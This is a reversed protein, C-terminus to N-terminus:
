PDFEYTIDDLYFIVEGEAVWGFGGVVKSLDPSYQHLDITYKTWINSITEPKEIKPCVSDHYPELPSSCIANGQSDVQYGAGGILFKVQANPTESRAWFTLRDAGTLDYGGPRAGWNGDPRLWYVGAWGIVEQTYAIRISSQGSHPNDSWCETLSVREAVTADGMWGTPFYHNGQEAADTYIAFTSGSPSPPISNPDYEYYIDDLYFTAGAPNACKDTAWGFGGILHSLNQGYSPEPRAILLNITYKQWQDTLEIFGTTVEPRLSDPYPDNKDGIGGVFFRIREGGIKGKAWFTLKNAWSLDLGDSLNGWNNEPYQWYAGAWGLTGTPSFSARVAMEGSHPDCRDCEFLEINDIDGMWGSPVFHGPGEPWETYVPFSKVDDGNAGSKAITPLYVTHSLPAPPQPLQEAPILVGYFSYKATRDTYSYGWHQGIGSEGEVKWLEDFADFFMFNVNEQEARPFFELLYKEQNRPSPVASGNPAGGSPWGAEGIIVWKNQGPYEQGILAQVAKYRNITFAAAGDIPMGSWFPYTHIMVFDVQDLVPRYIPNIGSLLASSSSGWNFMLNDIEATTIPINKGCQNHVGNRVQSIRQILYNIDGQTRHRLYYENGVILGEPDTTCALDILAQTEADDQDLTTKPYDLWAGAYIPLGMENALTPVQGNIGTASYTRIASTTHFLQFLDDQLNQTTPQLGGGPSQCDRYPSYGIGRISTPYPYAILEIKSLDWATNAPVSISLTHTISQTLVITTLIPEHEAAYYDNFTSLQTTRKGWLFKGDLTITAQKNKVPSHLGKGDQDPWSLKLVVVTQTYVNPLFVEATASGGYWDAPRCSAPDVGLIITGTPVNSLWSETCYGVTNTITAVDGTLTLQDPVLEITYAYTSTSPVLATAQDFCSILGIVIILAAVSLSVPLGLSIKIKSLM